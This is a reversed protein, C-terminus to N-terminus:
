LIKIENGNRKIYGMQELIDLIKNVDDRKIRVHTIIHEYEARKLKHDPCNNGMQQIKEIIRDFVPSTEIEGFAM